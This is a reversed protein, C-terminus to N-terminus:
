HIYWKCITRRWVADDGSATKQLKLTSGGGHTFKIGDEATEQDLASITVSVESKTGKSPTVLYTYTPM